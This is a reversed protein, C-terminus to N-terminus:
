WSVVLVVVLHDLIQEEPQQLVAVNVFRLHEGMSGSSFRKRGSLYTSPTQGYQWYASARPILAVIAAFRQGWPDLGGLHLNSWVGGSNRVM